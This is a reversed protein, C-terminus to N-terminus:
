GAGRQHIICSSWTDRLTDVNCTTETLLKADWGEPVTCPMCLRVLQCGTRTSNVTSQVELCHSVLELLAYTESWNPNTLANRCLTVSGQYRTAAGHAPLEHRIWDHHRCAPYKLPCVNLAPQLLPSVSARHGSLAQATEHQRGM